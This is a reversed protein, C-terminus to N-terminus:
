VGNQQMQTSTEQHANSPADNRTIDIQGVHRTDTREIKKRNQVHAQQQGSDVKQSTQSLPILTSKSFDISLVDVVEHTETQTGCQAGRHRQRHRERERERERQREEEM